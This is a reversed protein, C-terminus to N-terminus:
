APTCARCMFRIQGLWDGVREGYEIPAIILGRVGGGAGGSEGQCRWVRADRQAPRPYVRGSALLKIVSAADQEEIAAFLAEPSVHPSMKPSQNMRVCLGSPTSKGFLKPSLKEM